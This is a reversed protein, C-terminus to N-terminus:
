NGVGRSIQKMKRRQANKKGLSRTITPSYTFSAAGGSTTFRGLRDHYPNFKAIVNEGDTFIVREEM